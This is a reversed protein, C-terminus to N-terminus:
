CHPSGASSRQLCIKRCAMGLAGAALAPIWIWLFEAKLIEWGREGMFRVISLPAVKIFRWPLFYRENSLPSFFAVGMGGSTMADLVGHSLCSVSLVVFAPMRRVGLKSSMLMGLLGISLAFAISHSFGRHGMMHGYPIGLYFGVADADPLISAALAAALLRPPVFRRGGMMAMSLSIATHGILTPM